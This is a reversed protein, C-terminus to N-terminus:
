VLFFSSLDRALPGVPFPVANLRASLDIQCSKRCSQFDHGEWDELRLSNRWVKFVM